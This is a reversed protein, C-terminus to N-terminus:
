SKLKFDEQLSDKSFKLFLKYHQYSISYLINGTGEMTKRM